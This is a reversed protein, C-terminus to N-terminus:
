TRNLVPDDLDFGYGLIHFSGPCSFAPPPTASIEVGSLFKIESPIGIQLAEKAGDITDHDTISIARINLERSLTLIESPTLTGDSASSHIHLDIGARKNFEM